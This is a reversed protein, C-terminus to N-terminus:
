APPQVDGYREERASAPPVDSWMTGWSPSGKSPTATADRACCAGPGLPASADPAPLHRPRQRPWAGRFPSLPPRWHYSM